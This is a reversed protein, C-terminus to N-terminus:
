VYVTVDGGSSPSGAPDPIMLHRVLLCLAYQYLSESVVPFNGNRRQSMKAKNQWVGDAYYMDGSYKIPATTTTKQPTPSPYTPSPPLETM